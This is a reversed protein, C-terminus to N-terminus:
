FTLNQLIVVSGMKLIVSPSGFKDKTTDYGAVIKTCKVITDFYKPVLCDQLTNIDPQEIKMQIVLRALLRIKQSVVNILHKEKHCKLYRSGFTTILNDTKAVASIADSAM